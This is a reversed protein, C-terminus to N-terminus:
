FSDAIIFSFYYKHFYSALFLLDISFQTKKKIEEKVVKPTLTFQTGQIVIKSDKPAADVQKIKSCIIQCLLSSFTQHPFALVQLNLAQLVPSPTYYQVTFYEKNQLYVCNKCNYHSATKTGDFMSKINFIM